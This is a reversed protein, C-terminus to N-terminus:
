ELTPIFTPQQFGGRAAEIRAAVALLLAESYPKGIISVGLPLGHQQGAPVTVSPWGSVAALSSSGVGFRDGSVRDNPWAPGNSPMIVADLQQASFLANLASRMAAGSANLAKTHADSGAEAAAAAAEFIDQGFWPMATQKHQENWAILADLTRRDAPLDTGALYRNLGDRFEILLVEYEADGASDPLEVNAPDAVDVGLAALDGAVTDLLADVSAYRGSGFYDRWVGIRLDDVEVALMSATYDAVGPHGDSAPDHKDLAALASLLAAAGRVTRAMPGATDQSIAIPIIGDRSVLGLTPKVGVVGNISAPCVISGDTETGIALPALGAAVAAASGSSSGCANRDLVYPNRTLGGVSSWGSVSDSSRFNAWESLNTKGLIILGAKRLDDVLRADDRAIHDALAASGATTALRDSTDINAKLLIPVGHLPGRVAGQAREQDLEIAIALADPNVDIVANITPGTNDVVDIRAILARVLQESSVDGSALREGLEDVTAFAIDAHDPPEEPLTECSIIPVTIAIVIALQRAAASRLPRTVISM